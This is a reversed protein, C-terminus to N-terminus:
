SKVGVTLALALRVAKGTAQGGFVCPDDPRGPCLRNRRDAEELATRLNPVRSIVLSRQNENMRKFRNMIRKRSQTLVLMAELEQPDCFVCRVERGGLKARGASSGCCWAVGDCGACYGPM